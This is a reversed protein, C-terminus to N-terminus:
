DVFTHFADTLSHNNITIQSIIAKALKQQLPPRWRKGKNEGSGGAGTRQNTGSYVYTSQYFDPYGRGLDSRAGETLGGRGRDSGAKRTAEGRWKLDPLCFEGFSSM